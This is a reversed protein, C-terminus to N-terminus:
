NSYILSFFNHMKNNKRMYMSLVQQTQLNDQFPSCLSSCLTGAPKTKHVL